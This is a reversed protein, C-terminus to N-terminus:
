TTTIKNCSYAKEQRNFGSILKSENLQHKRAQFVENKEILPRTRQTLILEVSKSFARQHLKPQM